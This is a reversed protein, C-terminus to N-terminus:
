IVKAMKASSIYGALKKLAAVAQSDVGPRCQILHRYLKKAKNKELTHSAAYRAAKSRTTQKDSKKKEQQKEM